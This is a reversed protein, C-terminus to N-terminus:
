GYRNSRKDLFRENGATHLKNSAMQSTVEYYFTYQSNKFVKVKIHHHLEKYNSRGEDDTSRITETIAGITSPLEFLPMSSTSLPRPNLEWRWLM